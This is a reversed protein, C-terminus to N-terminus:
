AAGPPAGGDWGQHSGPHVNRGARHTLPEAPTEEDPASPRYGGRSLPASDPIREPRTTWASPSMVGALKAPDTATRLVAAGGSAETGSSANLGASAVTRRARQPRFVM